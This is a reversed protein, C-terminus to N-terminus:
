PKESLAKSSSLRPKALILLEIFRNVKRYIRWRHEAIVSRLSGDKLSRIIQKRRSYGELVIRNPLLTVELNLFDHAAVWSMAGGPDAKATMSALKKYDKRDRFEYIDALRDYSTFNTLVVPIGRISAELGVTSNHVVALEAHPLLDYTSTKSGASIFMFEPHEKLFKSVEGLEAIVHFPHKNLLNPHIRLVPSAGKNRLHRWAEGFAEYQSDWNSGTWEFEVSETEDNSSTAFIALKESKRADANPQSSDPKAFSNYRGKSNSYGELWLSVSSGIEEESLEAAVSQLHNQSEIRDHVQYRRCVIKGQSSELFWIDSCKKESAILAAKQHPMRGNFIYVTEPNNQEIIKEASALSGLAKSLLSRELKEFARLRRGKKKPRSRRSASIVSSACAMSLRSIEHQSVNETESMFSSVDIYKLGLSAFMHKVPHRFKEFSKPVRWPPTRPLTESAMDVFVFKEDPNTESLFHVADLWWQNRQDLFILSVKEMLAGLSDTLRVEM